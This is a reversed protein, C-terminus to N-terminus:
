QWYDFRIELRHLHKIIEVKKKISLDLSLIINWIIILCCSCVMLKTSQQSDDIQNPFGYSCCGGTSNHICIIIIMCVYVCVFWFSRDISQYSHIFSHFRHILSDCSYSHSIAQWVSVMYRLNEFWFSIRDLRTLFLLKRKTSCFVTINVLGSCFDLHGLSAEKFTQTHTHAHPPAFHQQRFAFFAPFTVLFYHNMRDNCELWLRCKLCYYLRNYRISANNLTCHAEYRYFRNDM